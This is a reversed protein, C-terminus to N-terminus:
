CQKTHAIYHGHDTHQHHTKQNEFNMHEGSLIFYSGLKKLLIKRTM